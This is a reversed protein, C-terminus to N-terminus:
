QLPTGNPVPQGPSVLQVKGHADHVILMMGHSETGMMKRPKLNTVFTGQKGILDEPKYSARIGALIQRQGLPGLDVQMKILKDSGPVSEASTITGVNLSIKKLDDITSYIIDQAPAELPKEAVSEIKEFLPKMKTVKFTQHWTGLELTELPRTGLKLEQELAALLQEMKAPMVPWLLVAIIRLAHCTASIIEVFRTPDNKAVRWPEQGHFYANTHNIFKWLRALALHFEYDDMYEKFDEITNWAEDRLDLAAQQWVKPPQIEKLYHQDALSLMRNLLNGLDNALDATIRKELDSISFDGDANVPMQRMLYYRIQEAGYVHALELPDIVNGRSKSMKQKDVQIWGHVLLQQPPTLGAAMLLAPWYVAHFRVIDKGLVQLNAPWWKTLEPVRHTDGYGLATIYNCLADIWVYVVHEPDHPFPVGWSITTRSISIDKLGSEV